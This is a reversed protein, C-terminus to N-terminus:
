LLGRAGILLGQRKSDHRIRTVKMPLGRVSGMMEINHKYSGVSLLINKEPMRFGTEILAKLYAEFRHEGFSAVEGTSAMEVGLQIDAGSVQGTGSICDLPEVRRRMIVQTATTIFDHDM